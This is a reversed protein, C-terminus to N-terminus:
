HEKSSSSTQICLSASPICLVSSLGRLVCGSSLRICTSPFTESSVSGTSVKIECEWGGPSHSFLNRNKLDGQRHYKAVAAWFLVMARHRRLWDSVPAHPELPLLGLCVVYTCPFGTSVCCKSLMRGALAFGVGLGTDAGCPFFGARQSPVAADCPSPCAHSLECLPLTLAPFLVM